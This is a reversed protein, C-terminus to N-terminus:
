LCRVFWFHGYFCAVVVSSCFVGVSVEFLRIKKNHCVRWIMVM